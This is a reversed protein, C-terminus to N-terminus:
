RPLGPHRRRPSGRRFQDQHCRPYRHLDNIILETGRSQRSYPLNATLDPPSSGRTGPDPRRHPRRRPTAVLLDVEVEVPDLSAALKAILQRDYAGLSAGFGEISDTLAGTLWGETTSVIQEGPPGSRGALAAATFGALIEAAQERTSFPGDSAPTIPVATM